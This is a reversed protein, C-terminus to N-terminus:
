KTVYHLNWRYEGGCKGQTEAEGSCISSCESIPVLNELPPMSNSCFCFLGNELFFLKLGRVKCHNTCSAISLTNPDEVFGEQVFEAFGRFCGGPPIKGDLLNEKTLYIRDNPYLLLSKIYVEIESDEDTADESTPPQIIYGFTCLGSEIRFINCGAEEDCMMACM